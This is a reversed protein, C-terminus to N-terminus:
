GGIMVRVGRFRFPESEEISFTLTATEGSGTLATVEWGEGEPSQRLGQFTLQKLNGFMSRYRELRVDMSPSDPGQLSRETFFKRMIEVDGSNFAKLYEGITRGIGTDPLKDLMPATVNNERGTIRREGRDAIGLVPEIERLLAPGKFASHNTAIFVVADVGPFNAFLFFSVMDSGAFVGAEGPNFVKDRLAPDKILKFDRLAKYFAHMEALTSLYGGNGRLNWLHGEADHPMDLIIGKDVDGSYGHAIRTQDLKPIYTGTERMGLPELIEKAVYADFSQGSLKEVIFALLSYGINSYQKKSGPPSALKLSRLRQLMEDRTLPYDDGGMGLPLSATHELLNAITVGGTETSLGEIFRDLTDSLKLQNKEVLQFIAVKTFDKVNSGIQVLTAPTFRTQAAQNALGYGKLLVVEDKQAILVNGHFGREEAKQILADLRQGLPGKVVADQAFLRNQLSLFIAALLIPTFFGKPAKKM